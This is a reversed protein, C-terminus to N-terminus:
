VARVAEGGGYCNLYQLNETSNVGCSLLIRMTEQYVQPELQQVDGINFLSKLQTTACTPSIVAPSNHKM